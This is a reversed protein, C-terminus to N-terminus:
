EQHHVTIIEFQSRNFPIQRHKSFEEVRQILAECVSRESSALIEEGPIVTLQGNIITTLPRTAVIHTTNM